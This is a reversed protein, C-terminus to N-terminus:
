RAGLGLRRLLDRYRRSRALPAWAPDVKLDRLM